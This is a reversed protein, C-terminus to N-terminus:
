TQQTEKREESSARWRWSGRGLTMVLLNEKVNRLLSRRVDREEPKGTLHPATGERALRKVAMVKGKRVGVCTGKDDICVFVKLPATNGWLRGDWVEGSITVQSTQGSNWWAGAGQVRWAGCRDFVRGIVDVVSRVRAGVYFVGATCFEGKWFIIYYSRLDAERYNVSM